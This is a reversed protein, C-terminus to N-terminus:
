AADTEATVIEVHSPSAISDDRLLAQHGRKGDINTSSLGGMSLPLGGPRHAAVVFSM